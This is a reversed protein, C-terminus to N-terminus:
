DKKERIFQLTEKKIKLKLKKKLSIKNNKKLKNLANEDNPSVNDCNFTQSINDIQYYNSPTRLSKLFFSSSSSTPKTNKSFFFSFFFPFVFYISFLNVRAREYVGSDFQVNDARVMRVRSKKKELPKLIVNIGFSVFFFM